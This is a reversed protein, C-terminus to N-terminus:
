HLQSLAPFDLFGTEDAPPYDRDGGALTVFWRDGEIPFIAGVSRDGVPPM